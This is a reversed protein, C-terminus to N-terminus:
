MSTSSRVLYGEESCWFRKDKKEVDKRGLSRHWEEFREEIASKKPSSRKVDRRKNSNKKSFEKFAEKSVMQEDEDRPPKNAPRKTELNGFSSRHCKCSCRTCRPTDIDDGRQLSAFKVNKQPRGTDVSNPHYKSPPAEYGSSFFSIETLLSIHEFESHGM